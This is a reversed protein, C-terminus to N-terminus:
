PNPLSIFQYKEKIWFSVFKILDKKTKFIGLVYNNFKVQYRKNYYKSNLFEISIVDNKM